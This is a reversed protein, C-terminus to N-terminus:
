LTVTQIPRSNGYFGEVAHMCYHLFNGYYAAAKFFLLTLDGAQKCAVWAIIPM